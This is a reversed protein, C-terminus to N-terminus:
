SMSPRNVATSSRDRSEEGIGLGLWFRASCRTRAVARRMSSALRIACVRCWHTRRKAREGSNTSTSGSAAIASSWFPRIAPIVWIPACTSLRAM